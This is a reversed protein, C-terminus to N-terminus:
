TSGGSSSRPRTSPWWSRIIPPSTTRSQQTPRSITCSRAIAGSRSCTSTGATACASSAGHTTTPLLDTHSGLRRSRLPAGLRRPNHLVLFIHSDEDYCYEAHIHNKKHLDGFTEGHDPTVVFLTDDLVGLRELGEYMRRVSLDAYRLTARYRPRVKGRGWDLDNLAAHEDPVQFPHHPYVANYNLFFPEGSDKISAIWELAKDIMIEEPVGWFGSSGGPRDKAPLLNKDLYVDYPEAAIFSDLSDFLTDSSAFFATKYGAEHAIDVLSPAALRSYKVLDSTKDVYPYIGTMASFFSRTSAAVGCYYDTFVLSNGALDKIFPTTDYENSPDLSSERYSTSEMLYWVVNLSKDSAAIAARVPALPDDPGADQTSLSDAKAGSSRLKPPIKLTSDRPASVAQELEREEAGVELYSSVFAVPYSHELGHQEELRGLAVTLALYLAALTVTRYPYRRIGAALTRVPGPRFPLAVLVVCALSLVADLAFFGDMSDRISGWAAGADHSDSYLVYDWHTFYVKFAMQDAALLLLYALVVVLWAYRPIAFRWLLGLVLGLVAGLLLEEGLVFPLSFPPGLPDYDVGDARALVVYNWVRLVLTYLLYLAVLYVASTLAPSAETRKRSSGVM